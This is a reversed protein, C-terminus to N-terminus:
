TTKDIYDFIVEDVNGDNDLTYYFHHTKWYTPETNKFNGYVEIAFTKENADLSCIIDCDDSANLGFYYLLNTNYKEKFNETVPCDDFNTRKKDFLSTFLMKYGKFIMQNKIVNGTATDKYQSFTIYDNDIFIRLKQPYIYKKISDLYDDREEELNYSSFAKDIDYKKHVGKTLFYFIIALVIAASIIVVINVFRKNKGM